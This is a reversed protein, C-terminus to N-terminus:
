LAQYANNIFAELEDLSSFTKMGGVFPTSSPPFITPTSGFSYILTVLIIASLVAVVAYTATKKKVEKQVM